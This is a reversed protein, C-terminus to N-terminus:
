GSHWVPWPKLVMVWLVKSGHGMVTREVRVLHSDSQLFAPLHFPHDTVRGLGLSPHRESPTDAGRSDPRMQRGARRLFHHAQPVARREIHRSRQSRSQARVRTRARLQGEGSGQSPSASLALRRLWPSWEECLHSSGHCPCLHTLADRTTM